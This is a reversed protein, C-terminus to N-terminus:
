VGINSSKFWQFSGQVKNIIINDVFVISNMYFLQINVKYLLTIKSALRDGLLGSIYLTCFFISKGVNISTSLSMINARVM